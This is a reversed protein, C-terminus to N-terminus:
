LLPAHCQVKIFIQSFSNIKSIVLYERETDSDFLAIEEQEAIGGLPPWTWATAVSDSPPEGAGAPFARAHWAAHSRSFVSGEGNSWLSYMVSRIKDGAVAPREDPHLTGPWVIWPYCVLGDKRLPPETMCNSM